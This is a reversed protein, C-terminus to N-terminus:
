RDYAIRGSRGRERGFDGILVAPRNLVRDDTENGIGLGCHGAGRRAERVVLDDILTEFREEREDRDNGAVTADDERVAIRRRM